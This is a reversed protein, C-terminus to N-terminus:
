KLQVEFICLLDVLDDSVQFLICELWELILGVNVFSEEYVRRMEEYKNVEEKVEEDKNEKEECCEYVFVYDIKKRLGVDDLYLGKMEIQKFYFFLEVMNFFIDGDEIIKMYVVFKVM